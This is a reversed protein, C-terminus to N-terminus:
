VAEAAALLDPATVPEPPGRVDRRGVRRVRARRRHLDQGSGLRRQQEPDRGAGAGLVRDLRGNATGDRGDTVRVRLVQDPQLVDDSGFVYNFPWVELEYGDLSVAAESVNTVDIYEGDRDDSPPDSM